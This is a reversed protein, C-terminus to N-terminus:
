TLQAGQPSIILKKPQFPLVRDSRMKAIHDIAKEPDNFPCGTLQTPSFDWWRSELLEHAIREPLRKRIVRGPNGVVISYPEVDKTVVAHAGIIAGTGINIGTRIFAGAGIWVDNGIVTERVTSHQVRKWDGAPKAWNPRMYQLSSTSMWDIPHEPYGVSISEAISCYRGIKVHSFRGRGNVYSFAGFSTIEKITTKISCPGEYVNGVRVQSTPSFDIEFGLELLQAASLSNGFPVLPAPTM